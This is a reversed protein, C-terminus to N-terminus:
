VPTSCVICILRDYVTKVEFETGAGVAHIRFVASTVVSEVECQWIVVPELVSSSRHIHKVVLYASHESEVEAGCELAVLRCSRDTRRFM